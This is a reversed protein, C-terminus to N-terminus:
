TKFGRGTSTKPTEHMTNKKCGGSVMLENKKTPAVIMLITGLNM